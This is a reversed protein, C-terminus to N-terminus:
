PCAPLEGRHLTICDERRSTAGAPARLNKGGNTQRLAPDKSKLLADDAKLLDALPQAIRGTTRSCIGVRCSQSPISVQQRNATRCCDAFYTLGIPRIQYRRRWRGRADFVKQYLYDAFGDLHSDDYPTSLRTNSGAYCLVGQFGEETLKEFPGKQEFCDTFINDALCPNMMLAQLEEVGEPPQGALFSGTAFTKHFGGNPFHALFTCRIAHDGREYVEGCAEACWGYRALGFDVYPDNRAALTEEEHKNEQAFRVDRTAERKGKLWAVAESPPRLSLFKGDIIAQISM